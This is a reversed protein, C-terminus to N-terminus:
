SLIEALESTGIKKKARNSEQKVQGTVSVRQVPKTGKSYTLMNESVSFLTNNKSEAEVDLADRNHDVGKNDCPTSITWAFNPPPCDNQFSDNRKGKRVAKESFEQSKTERLAYQIEVTFHAEPIKPVGASPLGRIPVSNRSSILMKPNKLNVEDEYQVDADLNEVDSDGWASLTWAFNPPPCDKLFSYCRKKLRGADVYLEESKIGIINPVKGIQRPPKKEWVIKTSGNSELRYRKLKREDVEPSSDREFGCKSAVGGM